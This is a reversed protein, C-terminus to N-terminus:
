PKYSAWVKQQEQMVYAKRAVDNRWYNSSANAYKPDADKLGFFGANPYGPPDSDKSEKSVVIASLLANRQDYSENSIMELVKAISYGHSLGPFEAILDEYCITEGVAAVEELVKRVDPWLTEWKAM